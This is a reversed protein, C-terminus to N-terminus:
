EGPGDAGAPLEDAGSCGSVSCFPPARARMRTGINYTDIHRRAYTGAGGGWFSIIFVGKGLLRQFYATM